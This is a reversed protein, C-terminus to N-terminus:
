RLFKPSSNLLKEGDCSCNKTVIPWFLKLFLISNRYNISSKAMFHVTKVPKYTHWVESSWIAKHRLSEYSKKLHQNEFNESSFDKIWGVTFYISFKFVKYIHWAIIQHYWAPGMNTDFLDNRVQFLFFFIIISKRQYKFSIHKIFMKSGNLNRHHLFQDFM